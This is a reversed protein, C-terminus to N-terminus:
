IPECIYFLENIKILVAKKNGQLQSEIRKREDWYKEPPIRTRLLVTGIHHKKLEPIIEEEQCRTIIKYTNIIHPNKILNISYQAKGDTSTKGFLYALGAKVVAPSIESLYKDPEGKKASDPKGQIRQEQPLEVASTEAKKLNGTYATLRNLKGKWSIYEKECDFPIYKIQPPLEVAFQMNKKNCINLLEIPNPNLTQVTRISESEPREPDCFVTDGELKNLEAIGEACRFEVNKAKVNKIALQIKREDNDIAIVKKCTRAFSRTQMGIGCGIEILTNCKLRKARYEAVAEITAYRKDENNHEIGKPIEKTM